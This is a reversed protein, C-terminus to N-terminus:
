FRVSAGIPAVVLSPHGGGVLEGFGARVKQFVASQGALERARREPQNLIESLNDRRYGSRLRVIRQTDAAAASRAPARTWPLDLAVDNWLRVGDVPFTQHAAVISQDGVPLVRHPVEGLGALVRAM